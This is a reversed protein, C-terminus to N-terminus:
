DTVRAAQLGVKRFGAICSMGVCAFTEAKGWMQPAIHYISRIKFLGCGSLCQTVERLSFQHRQFALHSDCRTLKPYLSLLRFLKPRRFVFSEATRLMSLKNPFSLLLFGAPRVLRALGSLLREWDDVYELVGLSVVGDYTHTGFASVSSTDICELTVQDFLNASVLTARAVQLMQASIDVGTVRYGAKADVGTVRYGAKALTAILLGSGCGYDLIESAGAFENVWRITTNLRKQFHRSEQYLRTWDNAQSDFYKAMDALQENRVSSSRKPTRALGSMIDQSEELGTLLPFSIAQEPFFSIFGSSKAAKV